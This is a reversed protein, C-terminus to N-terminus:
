IYSKTFRITDNNLMQKSFNLKEFIKVSPLNTLMVDGLFGKVDPIKLNVLWEVGLKLLVIGFGRGHVDTDLLYSIVAQGNVLDFRISGVSRQAYEFILFYCNEDKLKKGFWEKHEAFTIKGKDFSYIRVAPDSAWKYTIRKDEPTAWRLNCATELSLQDFFKLLRKGSHGDIVVKKSNTTAVAQLAKELSASSFDEASVFVELEKYATFLLKQNDVYMGSIIRNGAAMVELLIGSSPVIALDCERILEFMQADKIAHHFEIRDDIFAAQLAFQFPYATGTIVVIKKFQKEELVIALTQHTLNLMDAGGFCIMVKQLENSKPTNQAAAQLFCQRLLAFNLGLAFLTYPQAKYDQPRVRPAHNILLDAFFSNDHLDDICILKCGVAKIQKQYDITLGYLDLVVLDKNSIMEFLDEEHKIAKQQFGESVVQEVISPPIDTCVFCVDFASRIMQGLAICRILHGLGITTNGDVRIYVNRGM